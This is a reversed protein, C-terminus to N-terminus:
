NIKRAALWFSNRFYYFPSVSILLYNIFYGFIKPRVPLLRSIEWDLSIGPSSTFTFQFHEFSFQTLLRKLSGPTYFNIHTPDKSAPWKQRIILYILHLPTIKNPTVLFIWGHPKLVRCAEKLFKRAEAQTLHEIVSIALLADFSSDPYPLKVASAKQVFRGIERDNKVIRITKDSLDCGFTEFGDRKLDKVLWGSGCGVDLIKKAGQKKLLKAISYAICKQDPSRDM